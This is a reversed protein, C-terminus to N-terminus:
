NIIHVSFYHETEVIDEFDATKSKPRVNAFRKLVLYFFTIGLKLSNHLLFPSCFDGSMLKLQVTLFIPSLSKRYFWQFM